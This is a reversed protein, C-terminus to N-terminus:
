PYVVRVEKPLSDRFSGLDVEGRRGRAALLSRPECCRGRAPSESLRQSPSM